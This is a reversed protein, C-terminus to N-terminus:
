QGQASDPTHLGLGSLMSSVDKFITIASDSGPIPLDRSNHFNRLIALLFNKKLLLELSRLIEKIVHHYVAFCLIRVNSGEKGTVASWTKLVDAETGKIDGAAHIGHDM